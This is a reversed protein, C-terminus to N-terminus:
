KDDDKAGAPAESAEEAPAESAEEAPAESAEAAAETISGALLAKALQNQPTDSGTLLTPIPGLVTTDPPVSSDLLSGLGGSVLGRALSTNRQVQQVLEVKKNLLEVIGMLRGFNRNLQGIIQDKSDASADLTKHGRAATIPNSVKYRPKEIARVQEALATQASQHDKPTRLSFKIARYDQVDFPPKENQVIMHIVPKLQAHAFSLEYFANANHTTLDAVILNAESIANIIQQTIQGPDSVEDARTVAYGFKESELVPRIIYELLTDAHARVDSEPDGIPGIVFCNKTATDTQKAM